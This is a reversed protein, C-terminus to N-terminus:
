NEKKACRDQVLELIVVVIVAYVGEGVPISIVPRPQYERLPHRDGAPPDLLLAAGGDVDGGGGAALAPDTGAVVVVISEILFTCPIGLYKAGNPAGLLTLRPGDM